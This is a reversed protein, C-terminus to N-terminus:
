KDPYFVYMMAPSGELVGGASTYLRQAPLNDHETLVWAEGYGREVILAKVFDLLACGVGKRQHEEVVDVEYLLLDTQSFRPLIHGYIRGLVAGSDDFAVIFLYSPDALLTKSREEPIVEGDNLLRIAEIHLVDDGTHLLRVNMNKLTLNNSQRSSHTLCNVM